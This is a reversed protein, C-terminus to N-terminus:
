ADAWEAILCRRASPAKADPPIKARLRGVAEVGFAKVIQNAIDTFEVLEPFREAFDRSWDNKLGCDFDDAGKWSKGDVLFYWDDLVYSVSLREPMRSQAQELLHQLYPHVVTEVHRAALERADRIAKEVDPKPTTM